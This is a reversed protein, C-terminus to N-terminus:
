KPTVVERAILEELNESYFVDWHPVKPDDQRNFQLGYNVMRAQLSRGLFYEVFNMLNMFWITMIDKVPQDASVMPRHLSEKGDAEIVFSVIFHQPSLGGHLFHNMRDRTDILGGLWPQSAEIHEVLIKAMGKKGQDGGVNRKLLNIIKNGKDGFTTLASFDLNLTYHLVNIM